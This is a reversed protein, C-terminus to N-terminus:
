NHAFNTRIHKARVSILGDVLYIHALCSRSKKQSLWYNINGAKSNDKLTDFQAHHTISEVESFEIMFPIRNSFNPPVYIEAIVIVKAAEYDIECKKIVADHLEIENIDM